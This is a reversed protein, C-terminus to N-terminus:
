RAAGLREVSASRMSCLDIAIAPVFLLLPFPPPVMHTVQNYIPALKPTAPVSSSFGSSRDDDIVMYIIAIRTAPWSLKSSRAFAVMFCRFRWEGNHSLVTSGHM